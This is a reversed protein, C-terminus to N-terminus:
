WWSFFLVWILHLVRSFEYLFLTYATKSLVLVQFTLLFFCPHSNELDTHLLYEIINFIIFIFSSILFSATIFVIFVETKFYFINFLLILTYCGLLSSNKFSEYNIVFNCIILGTPFLLILLSSEPSNKPPNELLKDLSYFYTVNVILIVLILFFVTQKKKILSYFIILSSVLLFFPIADLMTRISEFM